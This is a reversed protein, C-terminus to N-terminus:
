LGSQKQILYDGISRDDVKVDAVIRFYKDRKINRLDIRKAKKLLNEVTKQAEEAKKKECKNKANMEATDIDLLRVRIKKGILPHVEPIHFVITDGDYNKIYKVCRFNNDDHVCYSKANLDAAQGTKLIFFILLFFYKMKKILAPKKNM